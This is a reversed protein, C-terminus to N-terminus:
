SLLRLAADLDGYTLEVPDLAAIRQLSEAQAARVSPEYQPTEDILLAAVDDRDLARM